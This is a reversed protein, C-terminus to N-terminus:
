HTQSREPWVPATWPLRASFDGDKFAILTKLVTSTDLVDTVAETRM